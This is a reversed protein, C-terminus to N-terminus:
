NKLKRSYKIHKQDNCKSKKFKMFVQDSFSINDITDHNLRM